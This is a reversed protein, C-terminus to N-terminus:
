VIFRVPVECFGALLLLGRIEACLALDVLRAEVEHPDEPLAAEPLYSLASETHDGCALQM